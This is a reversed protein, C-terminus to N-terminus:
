KSKSNGFMRPKHLMDRELLAINKETQSRTTYVRPTQQIQNLSERFEPDYLRSRSIPLCSYITTRDMTITNM